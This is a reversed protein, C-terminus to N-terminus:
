RAVFRARDRDWELGEGREAWFAEIPGLMVEREEPGAAPDFVFPRDVLRTLLDFAAERVPLRDDRLKTIALGVAERSALDPLLAARREANSAAYLDFARALGDPTSTDVGAARRTVTLPRTAGTLFLLAFATECTGHPFDSVQPREKAIWQGGFGQERVLREVGPLYWSTPDLDLVSGARELSYVWYYDLRKSPVPEGEGIALPLRAVALRVTPDSRARVLGDSSPDLAALAYVLSVAGGATMSRPNYPDSPMGAHYLWRGDAEQTARFHNRIGEWTKAPVRYGALSHASWLALVAFQTNSNDDGHV